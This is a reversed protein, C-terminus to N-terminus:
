KGPLTALWDEVAQLFETECEQQPIHGCNPLVALEANPLEGALQISEGPPVFNDADGTIVLTPQTIQDFQDSLDLQSTAATFEWLAKDWNQIRTGIFAKEIQVDTLDGAFEIQGILRAFLPGIRKLQPTNALAQALPPSGNGSLVAPAALILGEVREPHELALQMALLGGASNGVVIARDIGLEDLLEIAFDVTAERTYPNQAQWDSPLPRESLGFPIRDYAVARGQSAFYGFVEDWTYVNSAFGHLLLFHRPGDGADWYHIELGDTGPYPITIFQSQEDALTQPPLTGELPPVPILFPGILLILLVIALFIAFRRGWKKM